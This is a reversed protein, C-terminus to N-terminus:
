RDTTRAPACRNPIKCGARMDVESMRVNGQGERLEPADPSMVQELNSAFPLVEYEVEIAAVADEALDETEAAVIAVVEGQFFLEQPLPYTTPANEPTLIYAVGPSQEARSVDMSRVRAHPHPSVLLKAYLLDPFWVRTAYLATGTFRPIAVEPMPPVPKGVINLNEPPYGQWKKTVIREDGEVLEDGPLHGGGTSYDRVMPQNIVISHLPTPQIKTKGNEQSM